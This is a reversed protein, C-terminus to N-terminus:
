TIITKTEVATKNNSKNISKNKRSNGDKNENPTAEKRNTSYKKDTKNM